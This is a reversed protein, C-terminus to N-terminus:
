DFDNVDACSRKYEQRHVTLKTKRWRKEHRRRLQKARQIDENMWPESTRDAIARSKLPAHKDMLEKLVRNYCSVMEDVNSPLQKTLDSSSIDSSFSEPVVSKIKRFTSTVTGITAIIVLVGCTQM